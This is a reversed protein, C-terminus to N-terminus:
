FLLSFFLFSFLIRVMKVKDIDHQLVQNARTTESNDDCVGDLKRQLELEQDHLEKISMKKEELDMSLIQQEKTVTVTFKNSLKAFM